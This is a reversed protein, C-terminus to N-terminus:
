IIEVLSGDLRGSLTPDECVVPMRRGIFRVAENILGTDEDAVAVYAYRLKDDGYVYILKRPDPAGPLVGNAGRELRGAVAALRHAVASELRRVMGATRNM